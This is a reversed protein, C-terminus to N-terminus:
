MLVFHDSTVKPDSLGRKGCAVNQSKKKLRSLWASLFSLLYQLTPGQVESRQEVIICKQTQATIHAHAQDQKRM